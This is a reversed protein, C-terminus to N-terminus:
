TDEAGDAEDEKEEEVVLEIALLADAMDYADDEEADRDDDDKVEM